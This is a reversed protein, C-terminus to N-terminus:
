VRSAWACRPSSSLSCGWGSTACGVGCPSGGVGFPSSLIKVHLCCCCCLHFLCFVDVKMTAGKRHSAIKASLDVFGRLRMRRALSTAVNKSM